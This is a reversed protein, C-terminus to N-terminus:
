ILGYHGDIARQYADVKGTLVEDLTVTRGAQGSELIAFAAALDRLGEEGAKEFGERGKMQELWQLTLVSYPDTLGLPFFKARHEADLARQFWDVLPERVNDAILRDGLVCGRSGFFAPGDPINLPEGRGAWSWLIQGIAGNVFNVGAFFTDDVETLVRDTVQGSEDCWVRNPEFTRVMAQVGAVEGMVSRLQDMQHVGIDISGGGGAQRKLHRWPTQAVIRDPSWRGGVSGMVAMQPTGLLGTEFAWRVARIQPRYRANEFTGMTLKKQRAREVMARGARVSVALPKQTLLHLGADLATLGIQHHLFVPTLDLMADVTQEDIMRRYDTYVHVQTDPQFDSLYTHPAALPDGSDRPLVSPRPAPGQGRTHFMWADSEQRAVLATIRFDDIGKERLRLFGQLHANLIRGCGVIGIRIM